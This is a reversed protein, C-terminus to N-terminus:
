TLQEAHVATWFWHRSKGRKHLTLRFTIRVRGHQLLDVDVTMREPLGQEPQPLRQSAAAIEEGRILALVGNDHHPDM